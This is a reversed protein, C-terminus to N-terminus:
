GEPQDKVEWFDRFDGGLQKEEVAGPVALAGHAGRRQRVAIGRGAGQFHWQLRVDGESATAGRPRPRPAM